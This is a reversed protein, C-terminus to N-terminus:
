NAQILQVPPKELALRDGKEIGQRILAFNENRRAIRVTREIYKEKDQVYVVTTSDRHFVCELPIVTTDPITRSLIHCEASFGPKIQPEISDFEISIEFNKLRVKKNKNKGVASINKVRGDFCNGPLADIYIKAYQDPSIRRIYTENVELKVHLREMNHIKVIPLRRWVRDGEKIKEDYEPHIAHVVIGNTPATITLREIFLTAREVQNKNKLIKREIKELKFRNIKQLLEKQTSFKEIEISYKEIELQLLRQRQESEFGIQARKMETSKKLTRLADLRTELLTQELLIDAKQKELESEAIKLDILSEEYNKQLRLSELLCVVEGSDVNMREPLLYKIIPAPYVDPCSIVTTNESTIVGSLVIRDCFNMPNVTYTHMGYDTQQSRLFYFAIVLILALYIKKLSKLM